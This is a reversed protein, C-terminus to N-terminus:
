SRGALVSNASFAVMGLRILARDRGRGLDTDFFNMMYGERRPAPEREIVHPDFGRNKLAIALTLGAIGGKSILIRKRDM